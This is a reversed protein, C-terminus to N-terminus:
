PFQLVAYVISEVAKTMLEFDLTEITDTKKHYHLSRDKGSGIVMVAPYNYPWYNRHDSPGNNKYDEAYSVRRSGFTGSQKLLHSIKANFSDFKKLGSVHLYNIDEETKEAPNGYYGIMELAIMGIVELRKEFVSRAHIVSGMFETKFFPPEELSYAVLDIGYDTQINNETFIRALELIAAVSSANDDAGPIEKYVDYHAGVIFRKPNEPQTSAIVNRYINGKAEWEQTSVSLSTKRFETEIYAAAKDLSAINKHNRPPYISTLFEVDRYLRTKNAQMSILKM